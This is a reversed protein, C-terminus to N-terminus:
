FKTNDIWRSETLDRMTIKAEPDGEMDYQGPNKVMAALDYVNWIGNAKNNQALGRDVRAESSDPTIVEGYAGISHIGNIALWIARHNGGALFLSRNLEHVYVPDQPDLCHFSKFTRWIQTLFWLSSPRPKDEIPVLRMIDYRRLKM